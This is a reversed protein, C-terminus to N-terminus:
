SGERAVFVRPRQHADDLEQLAVRRRDVPAVETAGLRPQPVGVGEDWGVERLFGPLSQQERPAGDSASGRRECCHAAHTLHVALARGPQAAVAAPRLVELDLDVVVRDAGDIGLGAGEGFPDVLHLFRDDLAEVAHVVLGM